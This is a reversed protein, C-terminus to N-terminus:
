SSSSAKREHYLRNYQIIESDTLAMEDAVWEMALPIDSHDNEWQQRKALALEVRDLGESESEPM